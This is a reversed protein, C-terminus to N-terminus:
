ARPQELYPGTGDATRAKYRGFYYWVFSFPVIAMLLYLGPRNEFRLVQYVAWVAGLAACAALFAPLQAVLPNGAFITLLILVAVVLILNTAISYLFLQFKLFSAQERMGGDGAEFSSPKGEVIEKITEVAKPQAPERVLVRYNHGHLSSQSTIGNERLSARVFDRKVADNGEWVCKLEQEEAEDAGTRMLFGPAAKRQDVRCAASRVVPISFDVKEAELLKYLIGAATPRDRPQVRVIFGFRPEVGRAVPDIGCGAAERTTTNECPIGAQKLESLLRGHLVTDEGRWLESMTEADPWLPASEEQEEPTEAPLEPVLDVHCDSCRTFGPRYETKCIPCFM